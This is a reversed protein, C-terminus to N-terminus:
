APQERGGLVSPPEADARADLAQLPSALVVRDWGRPGCNACQGRDLRAYKYNLKRERESAAWEPNSAYKRRYWARQRLRKRELPTTPAAEDSAASEDLPVLASLRHLDATM